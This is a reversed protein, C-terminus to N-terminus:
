EGFRNSEGAGYIPEIRCCGVDWLAAMQQTIRNNPCQSPREAAWCASPAACADAAHGAPSGLSPLRIRHGHILLLGWLKGLCGHALHSPHTSACHPIPAHHQCATASSSGSAAFPAPLPPLRRCAGAGAAPAAPGEDEAAAAASAPLSGGPATSGLMSGRSCTPAAPWLCWGSPCCCCCCCGDDPRCCGDLM